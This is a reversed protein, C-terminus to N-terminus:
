GELGAVYGITTVVSIFALLSFGLATISHICSMQKGVHDQSGAIRPQLM